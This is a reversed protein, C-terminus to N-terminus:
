LLAMKDFVTHILCAHADAHIVPGWVTSLRRGTCGLVQDPLLRPPGALEGAYLSTAGAAATVRGPGGGQIREQSRPIVTKWPWFAM